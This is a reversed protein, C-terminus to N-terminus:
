EYNQEQTRPRDIGAIVERTEALGLGGIGACQALFQGGTQLAVGHLGILARFREARRNQLLKGVGLAALARFQFGDAGREILAEGGDLGIVGGLEFLHPKGNVLLQM